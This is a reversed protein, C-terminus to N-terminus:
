KQKVNFKKLFWNITILMEDEDDLLNTINIGTVQGLEVILEVLTLSDIIGSKLLDIDFSINEITMGSNNLHTQIKSFIIREVINKM